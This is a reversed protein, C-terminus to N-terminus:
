YVKWYQTMIEGLYAHYFILYLIGALAANVAMMLVPFFLCRRHFEMPNPLRRMLYISRSGRYHYLYHYVILAAMCLIAVGFLFLANGLLESFGPIEEPKLRKQVSIKKSALFLRTFYYFLSYALGVATACIGWNREREFCVGPPVNNRWFKRRRM